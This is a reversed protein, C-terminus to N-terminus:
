KARIKIPEIIEGKLRFKYLDFKYGEKETEIEYNGNPLPTVVQFQGLKNTRFARVPNGQGDRIEIIAGEVIKGQRDRVMGIIVNPITPTVPMPIEGFEAEKTPAKRKAPRPIPAYRPAYAPTVEVAVREEIKKEPEQGEVEMVLPEHLRRVKVGAPEEKEEEKPTAKQGFESEFEPPPTITSFLKQIRDLFREEEVEVESKVQPLTQLYATLKKPGKPVKPSIAPAPPQTKGKALVEPVQPKKQWLYQTPSYVAKFFAIIWAQLPREEVPFFAMIVGLIIPLIVLPWKILSPLRTAYFILGIVVGGAVQGFQKITMDGVLRFEYASIQQPVPHQEM